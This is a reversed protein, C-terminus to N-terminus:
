FARDIIAKGRDIIAKKYRLELVDLFRDGRIDQLNNVVTIKEQGKKIRM